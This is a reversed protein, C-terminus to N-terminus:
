HLGLCGKLNTVGRQDEHVGSESYMDCTTQQPSRNRTITNSLVAIREESPAKFQVLVNHKSSTALYKPITRAKAQGLRM